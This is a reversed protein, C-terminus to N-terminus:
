DADHVNWDDDQDGEDDDDDPRWEDEYHDNLSDAKAVSKPKPEPQNRKSDAAVEFRQKIM